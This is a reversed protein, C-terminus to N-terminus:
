VTSTDLHNITKSYCIKKYVKGELLHIVDVGRRIERKDLCKSKFSPWNLQWRFILKQEKEDIFVDEEIFKFNGHNIFWPTWAKQLANKGSIITGDWHEFVIDEHIIEMVGDLDHLNWAALWLNYQNYIEARSFNM